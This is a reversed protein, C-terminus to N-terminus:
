YLNDHISAAMCATCDVIEVFSLSMRCDYQACCGVRENCVAGGDRWGWGIVGEVGGVLSVPSLM